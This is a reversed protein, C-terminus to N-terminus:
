KQDLISRTVWIGISYIVIEKNGTGIKLEGREEYGIKKHM